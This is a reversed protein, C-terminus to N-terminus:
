RRSRTGRPSGVNDISAKVTWGGEFLIRVALIHRQTAQRSPATEGGPLVPTSITCETKEEEEEEPLEFGSKLGEVLRECLVGTELKSNILRQNIKVGYGHKRIKLQVVLLDHASPKALLARLGAANDILEGRRTSYEVKKVQAKAIRKAAKAAKIGRESRARAKCKADVDLNERRILELMPKQSAVFVLALAIQEKKQLLTWFNTLNELEPPRAPEPDLDAEAPDDRKRKSYNGRSRLLDEEHAFTQNQMSASSAQMRANGAMPFEMKALTANANGSECKDTNGSGIIAAIRLAASANPGTFAETTLEGTGGLEKPLFEALGLTLLEEIMAKSQAVICCQRIAAFRAHDSEDLLALLDFAARYEPLIHAKHRRMWAATGPIVLDLREVLPNSEPDTILVTGGAIDRLLTVLVPVARSLVILKSGSENVELHKIVRRMV